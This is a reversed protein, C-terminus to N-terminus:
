LSNLGPYKTSVSLILDRCMAMLYSDNKANKSIGVVARFAVSHILRKSFKPCKAFLIHMSDVCLLIAPIDMKYRIVTGLLTLIRDALPVAVPSHHLVSRITSVATFHIEKMNLHFQLLVLTAELVEKCNMDTARAWLMMVHSAVISHSLNDLRPKDCLLLMVPSYLRAQPRTNVHKLCAGLLFLVASQIIPDGYQGQAELTSQICRSLAEHDSHVEWDQLVYYSRLCPFAAKLFPGCQQQHVVASLIPMIYTHKFFSPLTKM